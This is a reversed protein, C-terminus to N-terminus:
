FLFRSHFQCVILPIKRCTCDKWVAQVFNPGKLNVSRWKMLSIGRLHTQPMAMNSPFLPNFVPPPFCISLLHSTLVTSSITFPLALPPSSLNKALRERAWRNNSLETEGGTIMQCQYFPCLPSLLSFSSSKTGMRPSLERPLNSSLRPWEETQKSSGPRDSSPSKLLLFNALQADPTLHTHISRSLLLTNSLKCQDTQLVDGGICFLLNNM